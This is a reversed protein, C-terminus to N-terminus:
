IRSSSGKLRLRNRDAAPLMRISRSRQQAMSATWGGPMGIGLCLGRRCVPPGQKKRRVDVVGVLSVDELYRWPRANEVSLSSSKLLASRTQVETVMVTQRLSVNHRM